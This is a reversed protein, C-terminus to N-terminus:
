GLRIVEKTAQAIAFISPVNTSSGSRSHSISTHRFVHTGVATNLGDSYMYYQPSDSCLSSVFCLDRMRWFVNTAYIFGGSVGCRVHGRTDPPVGIYMISNSYTGESQIVNKECYATGHSIQSHNREYSCPDLNPRMNCTRTLKSLILRRSPSIDTKVTGNVTVHTM